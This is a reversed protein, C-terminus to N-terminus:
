IDLEDRAFEANEQIFQFRPEAKKGMLRDVLGSAFEIKDEAIVVRALARSAPDMTTEKLQGPNMEGLGKFRGIDVKQNAKFEAKLLRDREEEDM